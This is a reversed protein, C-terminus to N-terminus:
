FIDYQSRQLQLISIFSYKLTQDIPFANHLQPTMNNPNSQVEPSPIERM